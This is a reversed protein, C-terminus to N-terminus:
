TTFSEKSQLKYQAQRKIKKLFKNKSPSSTKRAVAELFLIKKLSSQRAWPKQTTKGDPRLAFALAPVQPTEASVSPGSCGNEGGQGFNLFSAGLSRRLLFFNALKKKCSLFACTALLPARTASYPLPGSPPPCRTSM